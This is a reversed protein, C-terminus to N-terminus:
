SSRSELTLRGTLTRSRMPTPRTQRVLAGSRRSRTGRSVIPSPLMQCHRWMRKTRPWADDYRGAQFARNGRDRHWEPPVPGGRQLPTSRTNAKALGPVDAFLSTRSMALRTLYDQLPRKSIQPVDVSKLHREPISPNCIVFVSQQAVIRAGLSREPEYYALEAGFPDKLARANQAVLPDGIDFLFIRADMELEDACAFWLAVLPNETFDLFGTAAGQHQLVSLRQLDSLEAGEIIRMPMILEDMHYDSVLKRLAEEDEPLEDGHALRLRHMAGSELPWDADAQGRFVPRTMDQSEGVVANVIEEPTMSLGDTRLKALM